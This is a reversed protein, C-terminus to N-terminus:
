SPSDHRRLRDLRAALAILALGFIYATIAIPQFLEKDLDISVLWDKTAFWYCIVFIEGSPLPQQGIRSIAVRLDDGPVARFRLSSSGKCNTSYGYPPISMETQVERGHRYVEISMKLDTLCYAIQRDSSGASIIYEPTGWRRRIRQWQATNPIVLMMPTVAQRGVSDLPVTAFPTLATEVDAPKLDLLTYVLLAAGPVFILIGVVGAAISVVRSM